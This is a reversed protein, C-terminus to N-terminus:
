VISDGGAASSTRAGTTSQDAQNTRVRSKGPPESRRIREAQRAVDVSCIAPTHHPLGIASLKQARAQIAIFKRGHKAVVGTRNAVKEFEREAWAAPM